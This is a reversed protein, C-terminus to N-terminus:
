PIYPKLEGSTNDVPINDVSLTATTATSNGMGASTSASVYVSYKEGPKLESLVARNQTPPVSITKRTDPGNTYTLTYNLIVGRAEEPSLLSWMVEVHSVNLQTVRVDRPASPATYPFAFFYTIILLIKGLKHAKRERCPNCKCFLLLINIM